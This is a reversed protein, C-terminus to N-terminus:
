RGMAKRLSDSIVRNVNHMAHVSQRRSAITLVLTIAGVASGLSLAKGLKM